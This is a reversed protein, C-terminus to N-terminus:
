STFTAQMFYDRPSTKHTNSNLLRKGMYTPLLEVIEIHNELSGLMLPIRGQQDEITMEADSELLLRAINVSGFRSAM